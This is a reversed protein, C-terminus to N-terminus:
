APLVQGRGELFRRVSREDGPDLSLFKIGAQDETSWMVRGEVSIPRSLDSLDFRLEVVSNVVLRRPVETARLGTLSLDSLAAEVSVRLDASLETITLASGVATRQARALGASEVGYIKVPIEKGKVTVEGLFRCVFLDKVAQYTSESIIIPTPFEKTLGELRSGLNITDGIAGYEVRQQSGVIGVVAEGTNIGVGNRLAAGCRAAWRDSLSKIREQFELATRVAAAAHDPQDFPANYLAMIEDGVFQTVTGGHKFVADAMDTMYDRLFEAVEEPALREAIPTFGRIDSFLVTILRRSRGLEHGHRVVEGLIAPSFFRSLRQKERQAQIFNEVITGGYGLLLVTPVALQDTWVGRSVFAAAGVAAHALGAGTVAALAVLPRGRTTVWVAFVGAALVLGIVVVRPVRVLAIGQVLTELINAHIEVGPMFSEPAFPTPFVDHLTPSTAGVLVIKGRLDEPPVEGAVVRYYPVRPFTEPGGRYNILLPRGRSLPASSIGAGVAVRHLALDLSPVEREQYPQSLHARRIFADTDAGLNALGFGAARDRIQKLPPNLSERTGFADRVATLAAALVVNGARAVAEALAEDDDVGLASPEVFLVDFGIAAPKAENLVDILRGHLARPWPWPLLLEQFSDDDISVIVIPTRPARPGRLQFLGNQVRLELWEFGGALLALTVLLAALGGRVSVRAGGAWSKNAARGAGGREPMGWEQVAARSM